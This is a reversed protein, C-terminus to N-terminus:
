SVSSQQLFHGPLPMVQLKRTLGWKRNTRSKQQHLIVVSEGAAPVMSKKLSHVTHGKPSYTLIFREKRLEKRLNSRALHKSM